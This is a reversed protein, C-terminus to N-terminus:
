LICNIVMENKPITYKYFGWTKFSPPTFIILADPIRSRRFGCFTREPLLINPKLHRLKISPAIIAPM